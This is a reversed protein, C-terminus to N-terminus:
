RRLGQCLTDPAKEKLTAPALLNGAPAPSAGPAPAAPAPAAPAPAPAPTETKVVPAPKPESAPEKKCGALLVLAAIAACWKATKM